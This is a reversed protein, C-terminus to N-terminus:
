RKFLRMKEKRESPRSGEWVKNWSGDPAALEQRNTGSVLLWNCKQGASTELLLPEIEVFYALSARQTDSLGREAVCGHKDPLSRAIAQAVPRYSKGYDFWPLILTTALLWLATFGMTWHTLSRYPSRPATVILWIWWLTAALGVLLALIEFHGVFGPRLIVVRKALKEPWGLAMASWCLWVLAVFVSFTMMAFWDFANAAGRRLTLAGPTALLALPPLLLLAPIERPRYALALMLLTIFFLALPLLQPKAGLSARRTWLTWGALPIAPFAFWPLMSLFRGAGSFSFPTKLPALETALWGHFRAPELALLLAPWPLSLLAAIALAIGLTQLAKPRDPALWWALPLIALLPLVPALGAGLLCGALSLGYFIGSLRPRREMAALAGISGGYAALAVLMPQADHAHFLLGASGALLLPSAAASEQGYLERGAYYLGMLALTLWLGSALRMAEHMPLLWGFVKGTLAASWYYLPPEHFPRGALDPSLWDAYSLMHWAAGIHIADEGKWPDRGFLGALVYFALMAALVWGAPPLRIGRRILALFDPM